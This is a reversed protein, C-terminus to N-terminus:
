GSCEERAQAGAGQPLITPFAATSPPVFGRRRHLAYSCVPINFQQSRQAAPTTSLTASQAMIVLRSPPSVCFREVTSRSEEPRDISSVRQPPKACM